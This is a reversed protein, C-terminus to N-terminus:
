SLSIVHREWPGKLEIIVSGNSDQEGEKVGTHM